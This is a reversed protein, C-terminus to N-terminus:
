AGAFDGLAEGAAAWTLTKTTRALGLRGHRDVLIMGGTGGVRTALFRIAARAADEAHMGARMWEVSTKALCVRIVAEGDGTNSCAGADDDAYTGAGVIPSDGVRGRRKNIMGGTSTAAAVHAAGDRAVAGVTGGAWSAHAGKKQMAEWRQRALPTTMAESTTRAFGRALAFREAGDGAYLVHQGDDLAARAVAIPHVFPPLACVGGARLTTGDMISADLEIEGAENLCSGTGANFSPDDELLEVARQAADLASGGERLVRAGEAAALRCGEVHLAVRERAVDGAGGHVLIGWKGACGGWTATVEIDDPKVWADYRPL